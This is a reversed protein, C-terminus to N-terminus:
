CNVIYLKKNLIRNKPISSVAIPFFCGRKETNMTPKQITVFNDRLYECAIEHANKLDLYGEKGKVIEEWEKCISLLSYLYAGGKNTDLSSQNASASYLVTLGEEAQSVARDFIIRTNPHGSFYEYVNSFSKQLSDPIRRFYGRCADIILTQRPADTILTSLSMDGDVVELYDQGDTEDIGGHGTFVIFSYDADDFENAICRRVKGITPNELSIIEDDYWQGGVDSKLYKRINENDMKPGALEGSDTETCYIILAKRNM